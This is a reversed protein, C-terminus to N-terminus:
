LFCGDLDNCSLTLGTSNKRIWDLSTFREVCLPPYWNIRSPYMSFWEKILFQQLVPSLMIPEKKGRFVNNCLAAQLVGALLLARTFQIDVAPVSESSGDFNIPFGGRLIALHCNSLNITVDQLQHGEHVCDDGNLLKLASLFEKDESSCSILTKCGRLSSIWKPDNIVDAGTCGFIYESKHFLKETGECWKAGPPISDRLSENCDFVFVNHGRELLDQTIARGISGFGIVGCTTSRDTLPIRARLKALVAKSIMPPEIHRKAASSAVQIVPFQRPETQLQLGSTTQEIGAVPLTRWISPPVAALCHGGDDLVIVSKFWGRRADDSVTTWVQRLDQNLSEAFNGRGKLFASHQVKLGMSRLEEAVDVNTSYLKGEVYFQEPKAGLRLLTEFLSGTTELLHQTTVIAVDMLSTKAAPSLKELIAELLPLRPFM